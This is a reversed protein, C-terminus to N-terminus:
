YGLEACMKKVATTKGLSTGGEILVPESLAWSTAITREVDRSFADEVYDKFTEIKPATGRREAIPLKVGMYEKYEADAVKEVHTLKEQM